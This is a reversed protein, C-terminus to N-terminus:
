KYLEINTGTDFSDRTFEDYDNGGDVVDAYGDNEFISDDGNQGFVHDAGTYGTLADNGAGGYIWDSGDGGNVADAGPGAQLTDNGGEGFLSVPVNTVGSTDVYDTGNRGHVIIRNVAGGSTPIVVWDKSSYAIAATIGPGAQLVNGSYYETVRFGSGATSVFETQNVGTPDDITIVGSAYSVTINAASAASASAGTMLLAAGLAVSTKRLSM